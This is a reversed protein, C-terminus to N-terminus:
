KPKQPDLKACLLPTHQKAKTLYKYEPNLVKKVARFNARSLTCFTNFGEVRIFCAIKLFAEFVKIQPYGTLIFRDAKQPM